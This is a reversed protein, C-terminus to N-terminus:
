SGIQPTIDSESILFAAGDFLAGVSRHEDTTHRVFDHVHLAVAPTAHGTALTERLFALATLVAPLMGSRTSRDTLTRCIAAVEGHNGAILQAEALRLAALMADRELGLSGFEEWAAHLVAIAKGPQGAALYTVGLAYDCRAVDARLRGREYGAKAALLYRVAAKNAGTEQACIGMHHLQHPAHEASRAREMKQRSRALALAGAFDRRLFHVYMELHWARARNDHDGFRGFSEAARRAAAVAEEWQGSWIAIHSRVLDLRALQLDPLPIQSLLREANKAASSAEKMRGVLALVWAHMRLAEGRIEIVYDNPYATVGISKAIQNAILTLELADDLETAAVKAAAATLVRVLGANRTAEARGLANGWWQSPGTLVRECLAVAAAEEDVVRKHFELSEAIGVPTFRHDKEDM